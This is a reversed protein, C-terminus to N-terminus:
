TRWVPPVGIQSRDREAGIPAGQGRRTLVALHEEPGRRADFRVRCQSRRAESDWVALRDQMENSGFPCLIAVPPPSLMTRTHSLSVDVWSQFCGTSAATMSTANLGSPRVRAVVSPSPTEPEPVRLSPLGSAGEGAVNARRGTDDEGSVAPGQRGGAEVARKANPVGCVVTREAINHRSLVVGLIDANCIGRVPCEGARVLIAVDAEPRLRPGRKPPLGVRLLLLHVRDRAALGALDRRGAVITVNLKPILRAGGLRRRQLCSPAGHEANREAVVPSEHCAAALIAPQPDPPRCCTPGDSRRNVHAVGGHVADCEAREPM